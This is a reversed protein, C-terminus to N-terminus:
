RGMFAHYLIRDAADADAFGLQQAIRDLRRTMMRDHEPGSWEGGDFGADAAAGIEHQQYIRGSAKIWAKRLDAISHTAM